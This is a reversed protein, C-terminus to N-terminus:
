ICHGPGLRSLNNSNKACSSTNPSFLLSAGRFKHPFLFVGSWSQYLNMLGFLWVLDEEVLRCVAIMGPGHDVPRHTDPGPPRKSELHVGIHNHVQYLVAEQQALLWFPNCEEGGNSKM